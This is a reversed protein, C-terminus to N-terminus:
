DKGSSAMEFHYGDEGFAMQGEVMVGTTWRETVGIEEEVMQAAYRASDAEQGIDNMFM